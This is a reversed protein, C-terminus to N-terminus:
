QEQQVAAMLDLLHAIKDVDATLFLNSKSTQHICYGDKFREFQIITPITANFGYKEALLIVRQNTIYLTGPYKEVVTEKVAEKKGTGTHVSIGKAVRVSVGASGGKYGTTVTKKKAAQASGQYFCVEGKKLSINPSQVIMEELEEHPTKTPAPQTVEQQSQKKFKSFLGM